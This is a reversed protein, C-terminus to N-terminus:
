PPQTPHSSLPERVTFVTQIQARFPCPGIDSKLGSEPTFRVDFKPATLDTSVWSRCQDESTRADDAAYSSWQPIADNPPRPKAPTMIVYLFTSGISHAISLAPSTM